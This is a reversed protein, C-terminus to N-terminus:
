QLLILKLYHFTDSFLHSSHSHLCTSAGVGGLIDPHELSGECQGQISPLATSINIIYLIFCLNYNWEESLISSFVSPSHVTLPLPLSLFNSFLILILYM